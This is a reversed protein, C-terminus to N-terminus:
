PALAGALSTVSHAPVTATITGGTAPTDALPNWRLRATSQEGTIPGAVSRGQLDITVTRPTEANNIIVFSARNKATDTFATVMLLPDNSSAPLRVTRGPTIWRAYHGIAHGMGTITVDATKQDVLVVHGDGRYLRTDGNYHEAHSRSDWMNMMGQYVSVNAYELEDHIHIARARLADFSRADQWQPDSVETMWLPLGHGRALDQLKARIDVAARDVRGRGPGDLVRAISSYASGYPYTHFGIAGVYQRAVPDSLVATATTLSAEETEENGIVFKAKGLGQQELRAGVRKVLEVVDGLRGGELERNGSLPENFLMILQTTTGLTERWYRVTAEVQEAAEDLFASYDTDRLRTLWPSAWRSNIRTGLYFADFGLPRGPDILKTKLANASDVQFGRWNISLPNGDDNQRRDYSGPSELLESGDLNGTNLRVQQYLAQLARGRLDGTLFDDMGYVLSKGYAGFGHVTQQPRRTDVAVMVPDGTPLDGFLGPTPLPDGVTTGVGRDSPQESDATLVLSIVVLALVALLLTRRPRTRGGALGM